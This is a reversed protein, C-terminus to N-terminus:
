DYKKARKAAEKSLNINVTQSMGEEKGFEDKMKREAWYRAGDTKDTDDFLTKRVKFSPNKKLREKRERFEPNEKQYRYLTMTSIDAYFCAERDPCGMLFANELKSLVKEDLILKRGCRCYKKTKKKGKPCKPLKCAGCKKPRGRKRKEPQPPKTESM